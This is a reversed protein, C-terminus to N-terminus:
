LHEYLALCIGWTVITLGIILTPLGIIKGVSGMEEGIASACRLGRDGDLNFLPQAYFQCFGVCNYDIEVDEIYNVYARNPFTEVFGPCEQIFMKKGQSVQCKTYFASLRQWEAEIRASLTSAGCDHLLDQSVRKTEIMVWAGAGMNASGVAVFLFLCVKQARKTELKLNSVVNVGVNLLCLSIPVTLNAYQPANGLWFMVHINNSYVFYMIIPYISFVLNIFCIFSQLYFLGDQAQLNLFSFVKDLIRTVLAQLMQM